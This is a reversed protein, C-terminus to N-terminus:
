HERKYFLWKPSPKSLPLCVHVPNIFAELESTQVPGNKNLFHILSGSCFLLDTEIVLHFAFGLAIIFHWEM